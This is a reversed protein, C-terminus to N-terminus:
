VTSVSREAAVHGGATPAAAGGLKQVAEVLQLGAASVRDAPGAAPPGQPHPRVGRAGRDAARRGSGGVRGRAPQLAVCWTPIEQGPVSGGGLYTQSAIPKPRRRDASLRGIASGATRGPEAPQGAAHDAASLVPLSREAVDRSGPAAALTALLAALTLKDVRLARMLPHATIKQMLAKRGLIIGCQPGGLLKDGSFLVVDAGAKISEAAVPEGTIGYVRFDELAGSGIDDIM